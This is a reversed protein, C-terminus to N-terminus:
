RTFRDSSGGYEHQPRRQHQSFMDADDEGYKIERETGSVQM